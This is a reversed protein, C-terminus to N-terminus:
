SIIFYAHPLWLGLADPNKEGINFFSITYDDEPYDREFVLEIKSDKTPSYLDIMEQITWDKGTIQYGAIGNNPGRETFWQLREFRVYWIDLYDNYKETRVIPGEGTQSRQWPEYYYNVRPDDFPITEPADKIRKKM